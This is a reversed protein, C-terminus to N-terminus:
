KIAQPEGATVAGTRADVHCVDHLGDPRLRSFHRLGHGYNRLQWGDRVLRTFTERYKDTAKDARKM